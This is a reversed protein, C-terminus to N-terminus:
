PFPTRFNVHPKTTTIPGSSNITAGFPNGPTFSFDGQANGAARNELVLNEEGGDVVIGKQNDDVVNGQFRNRDFTTRLGAGGNNSLLNREVLNGNQTVVGHGTAGHVLNGRVISYDTVRIGDGGIETLTNGEIVGEDLSEIGNGSVGTVVCGTVRAGVDADIGLVSARVSCSEVSAGPLARIGVAGGSASCHVARAGERVRLCGSLALGPDTTATCERMVGGIGIVLGSQTFDVVSCGRVRSEETAVIGNQAAEVTCDDVSSRAEVAIGTEQVDEVHCDRVISGEASDIGTLCRLARVREVRGEDGLSVGKRPWDQLIGDHVWVGAANVGLIADESDVGGTLTFGGLDIEVGDFGVTIGAGAGGVLDQTVCYRGPGPVVYPLSSIPIPGASLPAPAPSPRFSLLVLAGLLAPTASKMTRPTPFRIARRVSRRALPSMGM